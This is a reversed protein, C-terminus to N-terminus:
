DISISEGNCINNGEWASEYIVIILKALYIYM